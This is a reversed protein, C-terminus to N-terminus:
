SLYEEQIKKSLKKFYEDHEAHFKEFAEILKKGEPTIESSGGESGGRISRVIEFGLTSEIKKLKDWTKRYSLGLSEMALKLSGTKEITKLLKYKGDGFINEGDATELWIKQNFKINDFQNAM